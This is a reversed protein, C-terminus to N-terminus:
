AGYTRSAALWVGTLAALSKVPQAEAPHAPPAQLTWSCVPPCAQLVDPKYARRSPSNLEGGDGGNRRACTHSEDYVAVDTRHAMALVPALFTEKPVLGLIKKKEPNVYVAHLIAKAMANRRAVSSAQWLSGFGRLMNGAEVADDYEPIYLRRLANRAADRDRQYEKKDIDGEKYLWRSREMKSELSEKKKLAAQIDSGKIHNDVIWDIWDERLAFGSFLQNMQADIERGLFSRGKFMCSSDYGKNPSKYYTEQMSGQNQAWYSTGCEYCRFLGRLLHTNEVKTRTPATRRSQNQQLQEQVQDYLEKSILPQHRGQFLENKYRVMGFYFPNKLMDRIAWNTFKRGEVQVLEGDMEARRKGNTRYGLSNLRDALASQPATGTSYQQFIEVVQAAKDPVIHCGTHREDIGFCELTCREYAWPPEVNFMGQQARERMGKKTHSSLNDSFYQAFGGLMIMFLRGEPTSYDIDQKVCAFAVNNETLIHFATMTVLMNRSFRDFSDVVVVDFQNLSSDELIERFTPRKDISEAWASRGEESYIKGAEWGKRQCFEFFNRRQADLSYGDVQEEDSVRFYGVARIKM